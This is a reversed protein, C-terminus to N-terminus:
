NLYVSHVPCDRILWFHLLTKESNRLVLFLQNQIPFYYGFEENNQKTKKGLFALTKV